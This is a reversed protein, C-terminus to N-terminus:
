HCLPILMNAPPLQMEKIDSRLPVSGWQFCTFQKNRNLLHCSWRDATTNYLGNYIHFNRDM